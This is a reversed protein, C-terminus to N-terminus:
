FNIVRENLLHLFPKYSDVQVTCYIAVFAMTVTVNNQHYENDTGNSYCPVAYLNVRTQPDTRAGVAAPKIRNQHFKACRNLVWFTLDLENPTFIRHGTDSVTELCDCGSRRMQYWYERATRSMM